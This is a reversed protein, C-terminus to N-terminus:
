ASLEVAQTAVKSQSPKVVLGIIWTVTFFFPASYAVELKYEAITTTLVMKNIYLCIAVKTTVKLIVAIIIGLVEM